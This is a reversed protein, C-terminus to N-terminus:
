SLKKMLEAIDSQDLMQLDSLLKSKLTEKEAEKKDEMLGNLASIINQVDEMSLQKMLSVKFPNAKLVGKKTINEKLTNVVAAPSATENKPRRM